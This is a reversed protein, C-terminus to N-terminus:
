AEPTWRCLPRTCHLTLLRPRHSAVGQPYQIRVYLPARCLPCCGEASDVFPAATERRGVM